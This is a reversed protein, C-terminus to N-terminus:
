EFKQGKELGVAIIRGILREPVQQQVYYSLIPNTNVPRYIWKNM